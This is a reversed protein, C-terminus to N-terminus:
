LSPMEAVDDVPEARANTAVFATTRLPTEKLFFCMVFAVIAFPVAVEFVLQLAHSFADILPIRVASPLRQIQAPNSSIAGGKLVARLQLRQPATLHSSVQKLQSLLRTDFVAGLAAVGIAGGITRFFTATSTATGLRAHPVSNQVAVVLVQMVLGLGLGIVFMDIATTLYSTSATLEALLGLGIATVATGLIPFIKYRGTRSVLRGSVIFTILLGAMLPLLKLGSSTPSAGHVVQLYLPLYVIAGFMTFGIVFSVMSASFFTRIKFLDLPIIPEEVVTEVVGFLILLVASGVAMAIILPSGWAYQNGGWTTLLIIATVASSLLTLGLLDIKHHIRVLPVHLVTAIAFLALIGIPVNIYFIWRWSLHQTFFGGALPGLVSSLGFVAGFYGMYRGRERPPIVDGIIAQSGVILGGAGIGQIARCAILELMTQSLGSLMSGALFIIIALQFFVKRGYLDGLKGWLPTSVTSALLYSTVVWALHNLGHLDGAITPLATSVITQDLSALFMGLMLAGLIVLIRRHEERSFVHDVPPASAAQLETAV